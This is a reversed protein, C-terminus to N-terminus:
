EKSKEELTFSSGDWGYARNLRRGHRRAIRYLIKTNAGHPEHFQISREVALKDRDPSFQWVSGYLKEPVFGVAVMAYLFDSWAVEGPTSTTSPSFFLTKFM